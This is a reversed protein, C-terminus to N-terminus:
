LSYLQKPGLGDEPLLSYRPAEWTQPHPLELLLNKNVTWQIEPHLNGKATNELENSVAM